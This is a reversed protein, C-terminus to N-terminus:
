SRSPFKIPSTTVPSPIGVDAASRVESPEAVREVLVARIEQEALVLVAVLRRSAFLDGIAIANQEHGAIVEVVEGADAM